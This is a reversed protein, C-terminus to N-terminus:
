LLRLFADLVVLVHLGQPDVLLYAGAVALSVVLVALSLVGALALVLGLCLGELSAVQLVSLLQM